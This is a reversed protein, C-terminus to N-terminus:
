AEGRPSLFLPSPALPPNYLYTPVASKKIVVLAAFFNAPIVISSFLFRRLFTSSNRATITIIIIFIERFCLRVIATLLILKLSIRYVSDM